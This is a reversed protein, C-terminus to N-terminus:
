ILNQKRAIVIAHSRTHAQLKELVHHVHFKITGESLILTEAIQRNSFGNGLLHLVDLERETLPEILDGKRTKPVIEQHSEFFADLLKMAYSKHPLHSSIYAQLLRRMQEREDLFIRLYGEPEALALSKELLNLAQLTNGRAQM